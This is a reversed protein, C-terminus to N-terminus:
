KAAGQFLTVGGSAAAAWAEARAEALTKGQAAVHRAALDRPSEAWAEVMSPTVLAHEADQDLAANVRTRWRAVAELDRVHLRVDEYRLRAAEPGDIADLLSLLSWPLRYAQRFAELAAPAAEVAARLDEVVWGRVSTRLARTAAEEAASRAQTLAAVLVPLADAATEIALLAADPTPRKAPPKGDARATRYAAVQEIFRAEAEHVSEPWAVFAERAASYANAAELVDAMEEHALYPSVTVLAAPDSTDVSWARDIVDRALARVKDVDDSFGDRNNNSM